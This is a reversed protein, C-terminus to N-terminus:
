DKMAMSMKCTKCAQLANLLIRQIIATVTHVGKIWYPEPSRFFGSNRRKRVVALWALLAILLLGVGVGVGIGVGLAVKLEESEDSNAEDPLIDSRLLPSDPIFQIENGKLGWGNNHRGQVGDGAGGHKAYAIIELDPCQRFGEFSLADYLSAVTKVLYAHCPCALSADCAAARTWSLVITHWSAWTLPLADVAWCEQTCQQMCEAHHNSHSKQMVNAVDQMAIAALSGHLSVVM